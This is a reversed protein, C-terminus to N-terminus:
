WTKLWLSYVPIWFPQTQWVVRWKLISSSEGTLHTLIHWVMDCWVKWFFVHAEVVKNCNVPKNLIRAISSWRKSDEGAGRSITLTRLQFQHANPTNWTPLSSNNTAVRGLCLLLRLGLFFFLSMRHSVPKVTFSHTRISLFFFTKNWPMSHWLKMVCGIAVLQAVLHKYCKMKNGLCHIHIFM